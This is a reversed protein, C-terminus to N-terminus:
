DVARRFERDAGQFDHDYYLRTIASALLAEPSDPDSQLAAVATQRAPALALRPRMRVGFIFARALGARAATFTPDLEVAKQYSAIARETALGAAGSEYYRARLYTEYADARAPRRRSYPHAASGDLHM